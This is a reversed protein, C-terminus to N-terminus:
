EGNLVSVIDPDEEEEALLIHCTECDSDIQERESTRMGRTHCRECGASQTHGIHNPYTDWWLEMGPFVNVSYIDGLAKAAMDIAEVQAAAVDPYNEAYFKKLEESMVSRAEEHSPYQEQIVRMSERKVFPLSRDILGASIARDVEAGPSKYQHAPRNHCDVCDMERWVGGEEPARRDAYQKISGDAGTFEVEYVEERTEDSRFRIQHAPDVTASM